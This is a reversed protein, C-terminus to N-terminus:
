KTYVHVASRLGGVAPFFELYAGATEAAKRISVEGKGDYGQLYTKAASETLLTSGNKLVVDKEDVQKGNVYVLPKPNVQAAPIKYTGNQVTFTMTAEYSTSTYQGEVKDTASTPKARLLYQDAEQVVFHVIGKENTKLIESTSNNRKILTVETDPQPKGKVLLQVSITQKPTIASPNVLPVFEARDTSTPKSFGELKATRQATPIDSVAVFSKASRLTRTAQNDHKFISDGEATIIYAGPTSSNFSAIYGNNIGSTESAATEGTYYLTSSIDVKKGAPTTVYVKTTDASWRGEIRYSAHNNSHNGLLLDVYSSEGVAVIPANTETWGDHAYVPLAIAASLLLTSCIAFLKKYM